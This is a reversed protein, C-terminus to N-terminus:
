NISKCKLSLQKSLPAIMVPMSRPGSPKVIELGHPSQVTVLTSSTFINIFINGIITAVIIKQVIRACSSLKETCCAAVMSLDIPFKGIGGAENLPKKTPDVIIVRMM